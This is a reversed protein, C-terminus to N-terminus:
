TNDLLKRELSIPIVSKDPVVDKLMNDTRDYYVAWKGPEEEVAVFGEWDEITVGVEDETWDWPGVHHEKSQTRNGYKLELTDKDAYIWNLM